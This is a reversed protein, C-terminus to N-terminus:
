DRIKLRWYESAGITKEIKKAVSDRFSLIQWLVSHLEQPSMDEPRKGGQAPGARLREINDMDRSMDGGMGGPLSSFMSRLVDSSGYSGGSRTSTSRADDIKKNLDSVSAESLKDGAEALHHDAVRLQPRLISLMGGLLSHIFDNGGFTGTVIPAVWQGNPAQIRVQDGVQLFVDKYGM